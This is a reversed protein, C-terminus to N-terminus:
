EALEWDLALFDTQSCVWPVRDKTVTIIYVYPLTNVSSVDPFQLGLYQGPANWGRRRIHLGDFLRDRAWGITNNDTM